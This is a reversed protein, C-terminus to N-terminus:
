QTCFSVLVTLILFICSGGFLMFNVQNLSRGRLLVLMTLVFLFLSFGSLEDNLNIYEPLFSSSQGCLVSELGLAIIAIANPSTANAM